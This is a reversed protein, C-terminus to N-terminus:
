LADGLPIADRNVNLAIPVEDEVQLPVESLHFVLSHRPAIPSPSPQRAILESRSLNQDRYIRIRLRARLKTEVFWNSFHMWTLPNVSSSESSLLLSSIAAFLPLSTCCCSALSLM